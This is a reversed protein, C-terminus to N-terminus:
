GGPCALGTCSAPLNAVRGSEIAVETALAGSGPVVIAPLYLTPSTSAEPPM